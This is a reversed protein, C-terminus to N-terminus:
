RTAGWKPEPEPRLSLGSVPETEAAMHSLRLRARTKLGTETVETNSSEALGTQGQRQGAMASTSSQMARDTVGYVEDGKEM